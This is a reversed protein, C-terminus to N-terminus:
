KWNFIVKEQYDTSNTHITLGDNKDVKWKHESEWIGGGSSLGDGPTKIVVYNNTVNTVTFIYEEGGLTCKMKTNRSVVIDEENGNCNMHLTTSKEQFLGCGCTLLLVLIAIFGIKKM